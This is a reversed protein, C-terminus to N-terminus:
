SKWFHQLLTKVQKLQCSLHCDTIFAEVPSCLRLSIQNQYFVAPNCQSGAGGACTSVFGRLSSNNQQGPQLKELLQFTDWDWQGAYPLSLPSLLELSNLMFVM